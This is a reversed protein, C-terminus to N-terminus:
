RKTLSLRPSPTSSRWREYLGEATVCAEEAQIGPRKTKAKATGTKGQPVVTGAAARAVGGLTREWRTFEDADMSGDEALGAKELATVQEPEMGLSSLLVPRAKAVKFHQALRRAIAAVPDVKDAAAVAGAPLREEDATVEVRYKNLLDNLSVPKKLGSVQYHREAPPAEEPKMAERLSAYEPSAKFGRLARLTMGKPSKPPPEKKATLKQIAADVDDPTAYTM